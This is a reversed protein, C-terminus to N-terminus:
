VVRGIIAKMVEDFSKSGINDLMVDLETKRKLSGALIIQVAQDRDVLISQVELVGTILGVIVLTQTPAYTVGNDKEKESCNNGNANKNSACALIDNLLSNINNSNFM